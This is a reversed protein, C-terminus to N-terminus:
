FLTREEELVCVRVCEGGEVSRVFAWMSVYVPSSSSRSLSFHTNASLCLSPRWQTGWGAPLRSSVDRREGRKQGHNREWALNLM